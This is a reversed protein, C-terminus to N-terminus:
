QNRRAVFDKGNQRVQPPCGMENPCYHAAEDEHRTLKTGCEPM